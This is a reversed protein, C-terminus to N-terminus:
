SRFLLIIGFVYTFIILWSEWGIKGVGRKERVILGLLLISTLILILAIILYQSNIFTHFISGRYAIDSASIMLVDFTNGGIINGVALTLAGQRVASISVVLEPLSTSIATLITGVISESLGTEVSIIIGTKAIYYGAISVIISLIIFRPLTDKLSLHTYEAQPVDKVTEETEKPNWMPKRKNKIIMSLGAIYIAIMILSGPHVGLIEIKPGFAFMVGASLLIILLIGQMINTISAAAHELNARIYTIDAISLFVTQAAIGGIANSVALNPHDNLAATISTISGSLSTVAGLVIAGILAEGLGTIDALQDAKKALMTGAILIVITSLFFIFIASVFEM